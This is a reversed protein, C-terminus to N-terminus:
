AGWPPRRLPLDSVQLGDGLSRLIQVILAQERSAM